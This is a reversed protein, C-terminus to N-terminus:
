GAWNGVLDLLAPAAWCQAPRGPGRRLAGHPQLVAREVLQDLATRAARESVGWEEAVVRASIVPHAPLLELVKRATADRRLDAVRARWDALVATVEEAWEVAAHGAGEVVGAFWRVWREVEGIRFWHLGSLYGGPDRAIHVSVPPPVEVGTRRALVWLVLVRGIRGNGDGYPHITEFQGHVVAAQTVPDLDDRNALAVLDDMLPPVEAAPPPVYVADLPSRGGIWGQATRFAGVMAGDLRSHQMLRAHWRHLAPVTLPGDAVEALAQTVVALNDAVWAGDGAGGVGDLEAAAVDLVPARLGEISSSAIGEARLLLRALPEWGAPLRDGARRVAAAARETRRAAEPSLDFATRGVPDPLWARVPRGNWEVVVESGPM